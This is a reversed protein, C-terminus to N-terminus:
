KGMRTLLRMVQIPRLDFLRKWDIGKTRMHYFLRGQYYKKLRRHLYSPDIFCTRRNEKELDKCIIRVEAPDRKARLSRFAARQERSSEPYISGIYWLAIETSKSWDKNVTTVQSVHTRYRYLIEPMNVLVLKSVLARTWLDYDESPVMEQRYYLGKNVFREKRWMSSAHLVPSFSMADFKVEEFNTEYSTRATSTGFRELGASVLDVEPHALLFAVQKEIRTPLSVDDSDMRAIFEGRAMRIGINLVNALGVNEVGRYRVIRSDSYSDLIEESNDPSCDNLVILEFDRYTQDLISDMAEQLYPAVNYVPMLISVRPSMNTMAISEFYFGDSLGFIRDNGM